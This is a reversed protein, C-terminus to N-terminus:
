GKIKEQIKEFASKAEGITTIGKAVTEDAIQFVKEMDSQLGEFVTQLEGESDGEGL